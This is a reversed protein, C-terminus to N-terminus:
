TPRDTHTAISIISVKPVDSPEITRRFCALTFRKQSINRDTQAGAIDSADAVLQQQTEFVKEITAPHHLTNNKLGDTFASSPSRPRAPSTSPLELLLIYRQPGQHPTADESAGRCKMLLPKGLSLHDHEEINEAAFPEPAGM